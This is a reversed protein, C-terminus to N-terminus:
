RSFLRDACSRHFRVICDVVVVMIVVDQVIKRVAESCPLPARLQLYLFLSGPAGHLLTGCSTAPCKVNAWYPTPSPAGMDDARVWSRSSRQGQACVSSPSPAGFRATIDVVTSHPHLRASFGPLPLPYSVLVKQVFGKGGLFFQLLHFAQQSTHLPSM